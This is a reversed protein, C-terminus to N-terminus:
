GLPPLYSWTLNGHLPPRVNVAQCNGLADCMKVTCSTPPVDSFTCFTGAAVQMKAHTSTKRVSTGAMVLASMGPGLRRHQRLLCAGRMGARTELALPVCTLATSPSPHAAASPPSRGHCSTLSEM